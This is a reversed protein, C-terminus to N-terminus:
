IRATAWWRSPTSWRTTDTVQEHSDAPIIEYLATVTHGCGIDGADKKDNNFDEKNLMRNEYGVLRYAKVRAPNFEVQIKVDKAIAYLTGWLETGFM